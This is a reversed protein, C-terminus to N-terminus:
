KWKIDTKIIKSDPNNIGKFVKWLQEKAVFKTFMGIEISYAEMEWPQHYYDIADSDIPVGMWKSLNENTEGNVFQKVHVMEHALTRLIEKAGIWPHIEVLFTRPKGSLNYDEIQALGFYPMKHNFKIFLELNNRLKKGPILYQAYFNAARKIYPTFNRDPSKIVKLKM